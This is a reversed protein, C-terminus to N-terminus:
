KQDNLLLLGVGMAVLAGVGVGGGGSANAPLQSITEVGQANFNHVIGQADVYVYSGDPFSYPVNAPMRTTTIKGNTGMRSITGNRNPTEVGNAGVTRQAPIPNRFGFIQSLVPLAQKIDNWTIGIGPNTPPVRVGTPTSDIPPVNSVETVNEEQLINGDGDLLYWSGDPNQIEYGSGDGFVTVVRGDPYTSVENGDVTDVFADTSEEVFADTSEDVFADTSEEMKQVKVGSSVASYIIASPINGGNIAARTAAGSVAGLTELGTSDIVIGSVGSGAYSVAANKVAAGVNGGSLTTSIALNGLMPALTMDAVGISTLLNQGLASALGGSFIGAVALAVPIVPGLDSVFGRLDAGFSGGSRKYKHSVFYMLGSQLQKPYIEYNFGNQSYTYFPTTNQILNDTHYVSLQTITVSDSSGSLLPVNQLNVLIQLGEAPLVEADYGGGSFYQFYDTAPAFTLDTLSYVNQNYLHTSLSTIVNKNIEPNTDYVFGFAACEAAIQKALLFDSM